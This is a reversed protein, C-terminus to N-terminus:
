LTILVDSYVPEYVGVAVTNPFGPELLVEVGVGLALLLPVRPTKIPALANVTNAKPM